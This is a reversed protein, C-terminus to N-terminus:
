GKEKIARLAQVKGTGGCRSCQGYSCVSYATDEDSPWNESCYGRGMCQTCCVLAFGAKYIEITEQTAMM